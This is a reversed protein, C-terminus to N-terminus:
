EALEEVLHKELPFDRGVKFIIYNKIDKVHPTIICHEGCIGCIPDDPNDSTVVGNHCKPCVIQINKVHYLKSMKNKHWSWSIEYDWLLDQTYKTFKPKRNICWVLLRTLVATLIIIIILWYAFINLENSLFTSLWPIQIFGEGALGILTAILSCSVGQFWANNLLKNWEM